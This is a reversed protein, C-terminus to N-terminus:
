KETKKGKVRLEYTYYVRTGMIYDFWPKTICWNADQNVGMHHDYHWPVHKKAWEVDLHAKRHVRYYNLTAHSLALFALPAYFVVPIHVIWLLFLGLREKSVSNWRWKWWPTQAKMVHRGRSLYTLDLNENKRCIKHHDHWHFAWISGKKKGLGHLIYKHVAWEIMNVYLIALPISLIHLLLTM